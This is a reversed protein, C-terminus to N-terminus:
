ERNRIATYPEISSIVLAPYLAALSSVLGTSLLSLLISLIINGVGEFGPQVLILQAITKGWLNVLLIGLLVAVLAGALVMLQIEFLVMLFIFPRRAGIGRLVGIEHYRMRNILYFIVLLAFFNLFIIVSLLWEALWLVSRYRRLFEPNPQFQFLFFTFFTLCSIAVLLVSAINWVSGRSFNRRAIWVVRQLFGM